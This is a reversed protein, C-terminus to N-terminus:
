VPGGSTPGGLGKLFQGRLHDVTLTARDRCEQAKSRTEDTLCYDLAELLLDLSLADATFTVPWGITEAQTRVKAGGAVPDVVM